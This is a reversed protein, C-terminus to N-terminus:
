NEKNHLKNPSCKQHDKHIMQSILEVTKKEVRMLHCHQRTNLLPFDVSFTRSPRTM